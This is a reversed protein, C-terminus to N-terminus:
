HPNAPNGPGGWAVHLLAEADAAPDLEPVRGSLRTRITTGTVEYIQTTNAPTDAPKFDPDFILRIERNSAADNLKENLSAFLPEQQTAFQTMAEQSLARPPCLIQFHASTVSQMLSERVYQRLPRGLFVAIVGLLLCVLAFAAGVKGFGREGPAEFIM